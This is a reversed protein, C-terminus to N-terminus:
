ELEKDPMDKVPQLSCQYETNSKVQKMNGSFRREEM